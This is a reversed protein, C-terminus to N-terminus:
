KRRFHQILLALGLIGLPALVILAISLAERPSCVHGGFAHEQAGPSPGECPDMASLLHDVKAAGLATLVLAFEVANKHKSFFVAHKAVVAQTAKTLEGREEEGFALLQRFSAYPARETASLIATEVSSLADFLLGCLCEDFISGAKSQPLCTDSQSETSAATNSQPGRKMKERLSTSQNRDVRPDVARLKKM